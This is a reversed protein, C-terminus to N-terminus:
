LKTKRVKEVFAAAIKLMDSDHSWMREPHWQLGVHLGDESEIAEIVGDAASGTAVFGPAVDKVAQHHSTNVLLETKGIADAM